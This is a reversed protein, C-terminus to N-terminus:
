MSRNAQRDADASVECMARRESPKLSMVAPDHGREMAEICQNVYIDHSLQELSSTHSPYNPLHEGDAEMQAAADAANAAADLANEAAAELADAAADLEAQANNEMENSVPSPEPKKPSTSCTKLTLGIILFLILGMTMLPTFCGQNESREGFTRQYWGRRNETM